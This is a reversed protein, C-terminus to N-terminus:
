PQDWQFPYLQFAVKLYIKKKRTDPPLIGTDHGSISDLM